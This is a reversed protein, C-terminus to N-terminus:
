KTSTSKVNRVDASPATPTAPTDNGETTHLTIPGQGIAQPLLGLLKDTVAHGTGGSSSSDTGASGWNVIDSTDSQTSVHKYAARKFLEKFRLDTYKNFAEEQEEFSHPKLIFGSELQLAQTAVQMDNYARKREEESSNPNNFTQYAKKYAWLQNGFEQRLSYNYEPQKIIEKWTNYLDETRLETISTSGGVSHQRSYSMGALNPNVEKGNLLPTNLVEGTKSNIFYDGGTTHTGGSTNQQTPTRSIVVQAIDTLPYVKHYELHKFVGDGNDQYPNEDEMRRLTLDDYGAAKADALWKDRQKKVQIKNKWKPDNAMDRGATTAVRIAEGSDGLEILEGIRNSITSFEKDFNAYETPDLADRIESVSQIYADKNANAERRRAEIKNLSDRLINKDAVQQQYIIPKFEAFQLPATKLTMTHIAM